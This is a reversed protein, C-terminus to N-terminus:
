NSKGHNEQSAGESAQHSVPGVIAQAGDHVHVHEVNMNQQGKGRHRDLAEMLAIFIRELKTALNM